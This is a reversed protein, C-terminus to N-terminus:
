APSRRGPSRRAPRALGDGDAQDEHHDADVERARAKHAAALHRDDHELQQDEGRKPDHPRGPRVRRAEVEAAAVADEPDEEAGAQEVDDVLAETDDGVHGPLHAVGLALQRPGHVTGERDDHHNVHQYADHDHQREARAGDVGGLPVRQGLGAPGHEPAEAEHGDPRGRQHRRRRGDVGREEAVRVEAELHGLVALQGRRELAPHPEAAAAREERGGLWVM